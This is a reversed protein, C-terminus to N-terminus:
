SSLNYLILIFRTERCKNQFVIKCNDFVNCKFTTIHSNLLILNLLSHLIITTHLHFVIHNLQDVTSFWLM